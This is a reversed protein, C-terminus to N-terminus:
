AVTAVVVVVSAVVVAFVVEKMEFEFWFLVVISTATKCFIKPGFALSINFLSVVFAGLVVVVVVVIGESFIVSKNDFRGCGCVNFLEIFSVYESCFDLSKAFNTELM